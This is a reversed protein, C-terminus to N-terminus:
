YHDDNKILGVLATISKEPILLFSENLTVGLKDAELLELLPKQFDLKLDGYGPSFRRTLTTNQLGYQRNLKVNLSDALADVFESLISDVLFATSIENKELLLAKYDTAKAGTTVLFFVVKQAHSLLLAIDRSPISIVKTQIIEPTKQTIPLTKLIAKPEWIQKVYNIQDDLLQKITLPMKELSPYGLRFVIELYPVKELQFYPYFETM